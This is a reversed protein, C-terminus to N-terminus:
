IPKAHRSDLVLRKLIQVSCQTKRTAIHQPVQPAKAEILIPGEVPVFLLGVHSNRCAEAVERHGQFSVPLAISVADAFSRYYLAQELAEQWDEMKAEVM